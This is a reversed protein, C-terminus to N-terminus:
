IGSISQFINLETRGGFRNKEARAVGQEVRIVVDAFHEFERSGRYQGEKTTQCIYIISLRPHSAAIQEMDIPTINLTNVSDIFICDYENFKDKRLVGVFNLNPHNGQVMKLKDQLTKSVKEENAIYLVKRSHEKALYYAFEMALTSKGCGPGGYFMATFRESPDGILNLWKGTFGITKFSLKALNESSIIDDPKITTIDESPKPDVGRLGREEYIKQLYKAVQKKQHREAMWSMIGNLTNEAIAPVKSKNGLYKELSSKIELIENWYPCTDPIKGSEIAKEIRALLSKAKDKVDKKGHIGIYQKIYTVSLMTKQSHAIQSYEELTNEDLTVKITNGMQNYCKILQQQINKIESAYVSTKRIRKEIIAKQLSNLLNLIQAKDKTKGHLGVYRKIFSVDPSVKEVSSTVPDETKKEEVPEKPTKSPKPQKEKFKKEPTPKNVVENLKEVFTDIYKKITEDENYLDINERIFEFEEKKLADPLITQGIDSYESIINEVTIMATSNLGNLTGEDAFSYYGENTFIVHDLLIIKVTKLAQTINRTLEKDQESPAMTGSPHNHSIIIGQALAKTALGLVMPIDVMTASSTGVTHKYYGILKNARNFLLMVFHEQISNRGYIRKLIEFVDKSSSVKDVDFAKGKNMRIKLEPVFPKLPKPDVGFLVVEKKEQYM